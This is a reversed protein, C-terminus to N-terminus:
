ALGLAKAYHKEVSCAAAAALNQNEIFVAWIHLFWITVNNIKNTHSGPKWECKSGPRYGLENWECSSGNKLKPAPPWDNSTTGPLHFNNRRDFKRGENATSMFALRERIISVELETFFTTKWLTGWFNSTRTTTLNTKVFFRLHKRLQTPQKLFFNFVVFWCSSWWHAHLFGSM